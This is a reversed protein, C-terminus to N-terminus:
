KKRTYLIEMMKFVKGDPGAGWMEFTHHDKDTVTVKEEFPSDKGTTPDMMSGTFKWTKGNDSTSGTTNMAGTSFTDMWTGWYQKKMNDYGTYGLGSFPMGMVTSSFKQEVERGGLIWSNTATGASVTPPQGPQEWMSVKADFTGVMNDLAKHEPGPTMAKMMAEMAAKQEASMEKPPDAAWLASTCLVLLATAISVRIKM